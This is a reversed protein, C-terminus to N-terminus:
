KINFSYSFSRGQQTKRFTAGKARSAVCSGLSANPASTPTASTVRGSGAVKFKVKVKGTGKSRCSKVRSNAKAIGAKIDSTSLKVPLNSSSSKTKSSSKSYKSCCAPKKDAMLCDIQDMCKTSSSSSSKSSSSSSSKSSSKSSTKTSKSSTTAKPKEPTKEPPTDTAEPPTPPNETSTDKNETETTSGMSPQEGPPKEGTPVKETKEPTDVVKAPVDSSAVETPKDDGKLLVFLLVGALLVIAAIGAILMYMMKNDTSPASTPLLVANAQGFSSAALLPIDDATGARLTASPANSNSYAAAMSQIDILGSGEDGGANAMGAQAEQTPAPTDTALAALNNLSFLVSNEGREGTLAEGSDSVQAAAVPASASSSSSASFSEGSTSTSTAAAAPAATTVSAQQTFVDQPQENRPVLGALEPIEKLPTWDGMGERWGYTEGDVKGADLYQKVEGEGMPGVQEQDIVLHWIGDAPVNTTSHDAGGTLGTADGSFVRTAGDDEFGTPTNEVPASEIVTREEGRVVVINSCKKCRIKFVKGAVKEDAIAYKAGCADCLIKMTLSGGYARM